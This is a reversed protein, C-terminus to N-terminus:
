PQIFQYINNQKIVYVGDFATHAETSNSTVSAKHVQLKNLYELATIANSTEFDSGQQLIYNQIQLYEESGEKACLDDINMHQVVGMLKLKLYVNVNLFGKPYNNLSSDILRLQFTV